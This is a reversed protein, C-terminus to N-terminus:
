ELYQNLASRQKQLTNNVFKQSLRKPTESTAILNRFKCNKNGEDCNLLKVVIKSIKSLNWYKAIITVSQNALYCMEAVDVMDWIACNSVTWVLLSLRNEPEFGMVHFRKQM